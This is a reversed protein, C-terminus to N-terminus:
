RPLPHVGDGHWRGEHVRGREYWLHRAAPLVEQDWCVWLGGGQVRACKIPVCVDRQLAPASWGRHCQVAGARRQGCPVAPAPARPHAADKRSAACDCRASPSPFSPRQRDIANTNDLTTDTSVRRSSEKGRNPKPRKTGGRRTSRDKSHSNSMSGAGCCRCGGSQRRPGAPVRSFLTHLFLLCFAVLLM